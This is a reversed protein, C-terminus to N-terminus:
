AQAPAQPGTAGCEACVLRLVLVDDADLSVRLTQEDHLIATAGKYTWLTSLSNVTGFRTDLTISGQQAGLRNIIYLLYTGGAVRRPVCEVEIDATWRPAVGREALLSIAFARLEARESATLQYYVGTTYAGGPVTGLVASTGGGAARAVYGACHGDDSHLLPRVESTAAGAASLISEAAPTRFTTVRYDGRLRARDGARLRAAPLKQNLLVKLGEFSDTNQMAAPERRALRWREWLLYKFLLDTVLRRAVTGYGRHRTRDLPWPFLAASALPQDHEDRGIVTPFTILHGGGAVYRELKALTAADVWGRTPFVVARARALQEDDIAQADAFRPLFGATLLVDYLGQLGLAELYLLPDPLRQGPLYNGPMLRAYPQYTLYLVDDYCAQAALVEQEHEALFGHLAAVAALRPTPHGDIDFFSHFTYPSGDPDRGDHAVYYSHGQLGHAVGGITAQVTAEPKIRARPDFWGAGMEPTIFTTEPRMLALFREPDHSPAFPMDATSPTGSGKTYIDYGQVQALGAKRAPAVPSLYIDLDNVVLPVSVGLALAMARLRELYAAVWGELFDYWDTAQAMKVARRPPLATAYTVRPDSWVARLGGPEDGYRERLFARYRAVTDANFDFNGLTNGLPMGTENDLQWSLVIDAFQPWLLGAVARLWREVKALYLPHLLSYSFYFSGKVLEGRPDRMVCEPYRRGLWLPVGFGRFEAYIQPGPRIMVPLGAARCESLFGVLDAQPGSQGVFDTQGEQLEHVIWPVYTAVANFGAGRLHDLAPRWLERRIRFYQLEGCRLYVERGGEVFPGGPREIRM